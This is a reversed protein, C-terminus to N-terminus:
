KLLLKVEDLMVNKTLFCNFVLFIRNQKLAEENLIKLLDHLAKEYTEEKTIGIFYVIIDIKILQYFTRWFRQSVVDGDLDWIDFNNNNIHFTVFNIGTTQDIQIEEKSENSTEVIRQLFTSKGTHEQGLLLVENAKVSGNMSGM